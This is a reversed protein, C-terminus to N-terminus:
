TPDSFDNIKAYCSIIGKPFMGLTRRSLKKLYLKMTKKETLAKPRGFPLWTNRWNEPDPLMHNSVHVPKIILDAWRNMRM